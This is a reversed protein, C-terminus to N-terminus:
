RPRVSPAQCGLRSPNACQFTLGARVRDRPALPTPLEVRGGDEKPSSACTPKACRDAVGGPSLGSLEVREKEESAGPQCETGRSTAATSSPEIGAPAGHDTLWSALCPAAVEADGTRSRSRGGHSCLQTPEADAQWTSTRPNSERQESWGGNDSLGPGQRGLLLRSNSERVTTWASSEPLWDSRRRPCSCDSTHHAESTLTHRDPSGRTLVHQHLM